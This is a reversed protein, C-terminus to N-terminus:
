GNDGVKIGVEGVLEALRRHLEPGYGTTVNPVHLNVVKEESAIRLYVEDRGPFAKLTDLLRQLFAADGSEDKTQTISLTLHIPPTEPPINAPSKERAAEPQYGQVRECTIQPQDDKLRVKGEVLLINGALPHLSRLKGSIQDLLDRMIM